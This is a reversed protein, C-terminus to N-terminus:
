FRLSSLFTQQATFMRVLEGSSGTGKMVVAECEYYREGVSFVVIRARRGGAGIEYGCFTKGGMEFKGPAALVVMSDPGSQRLGISIRALLELGDKRIQLGALRDLTIEKIGMAASMDDKMLWAVAAPVLTDGASSFWGQPVRGVFLGDRSRFTEKTLPYDVGYPLSAACSIFLLASLLSAAYEKV